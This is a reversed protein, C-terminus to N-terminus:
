AAGQRKFDRWRSPTALLDEVATKIREIPADWMNPSPLMNNLIYMCSNAEFLLVQGDPGLHCDVGFFDLDLRDAIVSFIPQLRPVWETDFAAFMAREERETNEARDDTHLLWRNGVVFHRLFIRDEVVVVRAKRHFGDASKFDRFETVYLSRGDRKLTSMRDLADPGEVRVMDLGGHSGAVRVLVPYALGARSVVDALERATLVDSRITKPVDLGPIGTLVRAVEDRTTRAIAAPHNFCPRQVKLAIREILRLTEKCLDADAAHNLLPGPGLRLPIQDGPHLYLIQPAFRKSLYPAISATGLVVFDLRKGEDVVVIRATREDPVGFLVNIPIRKQTARAIADNTPRDSM